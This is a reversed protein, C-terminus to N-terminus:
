PAAAGQRLFREVDVQHNLGVLGIQLRESCGATIHDRDVGLGAGCRWRPRCVILPNPLCAPTASLGPVGALAM